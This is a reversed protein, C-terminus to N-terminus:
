ACAFISLARAMCRDAEHPCDCSHAEHYIRKRGANLVREVQGGIEAVIDGVRIIGARM